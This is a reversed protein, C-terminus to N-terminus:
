SLLIVVLLVFILFGGILGAFVKNIGLFTDISVKVEVNEEKQTEEMEKSIGALINKVNSDNSITNFVAEMVNNTVQEFV